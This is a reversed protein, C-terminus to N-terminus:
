PPSVITVLTDTLTAGGRRRRAVLHVTWPGAGEVDWRLETDGDIRTGPALHETGRALLRELQAQARLRLGTRLDARQAHSALRTSVSAVALVGIGLVIVAVIMELLTLGSRDTWAM